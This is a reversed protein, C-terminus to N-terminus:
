PRADHDLREVVGVDLRRRDVDVDVTLEPDKAVVRRRVDVRLLRMFVEGLEDLDRLAGNM